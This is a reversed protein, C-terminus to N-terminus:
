GWITHHSEKLSVYDDKGDGIIIHDHVKINLLDGAKVLARTLEIDHSSPQPDGSPHNHFILIAVSNSIIALKFCERQAVLCQDVTGISVTHLANIKNKANLCMLCFHERDVGELFKHAIRAAETSCSVATDGFPLVDEKVQILKIVKISKM